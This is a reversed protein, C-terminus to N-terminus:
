RGSSGKPQGEPVPQDLRDILHDVRGVARFGIRELSSRSMAGGHAVVAPTDRRVAENWAGQVVAGMAGRRRDSPITAVGGLYLGHPSPCGYGTSVPRNSDLALFTIVHDGRREADFTDRARRREDDTDAESFGFGEIAVEIAALHDEFTSVRRVDFPGVRVIPAEDLVLITSGEESELTLGADILRERLRPPTASPGITWAAARRGRERMLDRLADVAGRVDGEGVRVRGVTTSWHHEGPSFTVVFRDTVIREEDPGLATYEDPDEAFALLAPDAAM